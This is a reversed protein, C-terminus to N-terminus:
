DRREFINVAVFTGTGGHSDMLGRRAGKVQRGPGAEGRLQLMIEVGQAVGTAGVPHGFGILGGSTNCPLEGGLDFVGEELLRGGEGHKCFGLDEYSQIEVGSYADHIEAVDIEKLPNKIGAMAYAQQSAVQKGRFHCIGPNPRPRDGMRMFDTGCGTGAFYIHPKAQWSKAHKKAWEETSLILCAAGDSLLSCDLRKYPAAIMPSKMVDEVTIKMPGHAKPNHLANRHNKVSVMAMQEETTGYRRMHEQIMVAYYAIYFGGVLYEWDTDSAMAIFQQSVDSPVHRGMNEAGYVIMSDCLGAKLYAYANRLALGGTGGGGEVRVNPKPCMGISDHFIAGQKLQKDFHDSFYSTTAHEIEEIEVGADQVAEQVAEVMWDRITGDRREAAFKSIGGGLVVVPREEM